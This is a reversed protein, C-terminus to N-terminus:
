PQHRLFLLAFQIENGSRHFLGDSRYSRSPQESVDFGLMLLEGHIRPAGWTPNEVVMQFILDRVQKSIRKRGFVRRSRSIVRWYLAFGARHWRVVTDPTLIILAQKWGSWFRRVLVWFLKDVSAIHPRPHKRKFVSLQQRLVLNELLLRPRSHFVRLISGLLLQLNRFM